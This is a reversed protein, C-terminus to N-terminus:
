TMCCRSRRCTLDWVDHHVMQYVWKAKGTSADVAVIATGFKEKVANRRRGLLRAPRQRDAPLAPEPGQRLDARDVREANWRSSRRRPMPARPRAVDWAWALKGTLVDFARVAGSPEGAVIDRVWGGVVTLHGMVVPLSTPHYRKSNETPGMGKKLDVYGKDGFDQCLAGTHADLAFLRADVSSV